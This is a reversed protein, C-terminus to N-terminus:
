ALEKPSTFWNPEVTHVRNIWDPHVITDACWRQDLWMGHADVVSKLFGWDHDIDWDWAWMNGPGDIRVLPVIRFAHGHCLGVDEWSIAESGAKAILNRQRDVYRLTEYIEFNTETQGTEYARILDQTIRECARQTKTHLLSIDRNITM